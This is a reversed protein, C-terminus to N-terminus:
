PELMLVLSDAVLRFPRLFRYLPCPVYGKDTPNLLRTSHLSGM